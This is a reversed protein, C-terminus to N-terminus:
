FFYATFIIYAIFHAYGRVQFIHNETNVKIYNNSMEFIWYYSISLYPM